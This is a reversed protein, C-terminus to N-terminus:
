FFYQYGIALGYATDGPNVTYNGASSTGSPVLASGPANDYAAVIGYVRAQASIAEVWGLTIAKSQDSPASNKTKGESYAFMLTGTGTVATQTGVMWEDRSTKLGTDHDTDVHSYGGMLKTKKLQYSAGVFSQTTNATTSLIHDDHEYVAGASFAGREYNLSGSQAGTGGGTEGNTAVMVSGSLGAFKPSTYLASSNYRANGASVVGNNTPSGYGMEFPDYATITNFMPTYQRGFTLRGYKDSEVGAYAQRGFFLGGQALRGNNAFFGAELQFIGRVGNGIDAGGKVGLRSGNLGGSELAFRDGKGGGTNYETFLDIKGYLTVNPNGGLASGSTVPIASATPAPAAKQAQELQAIREQMKQMAQKMEELEGAHAVPSLTAILGAGAMAIIIKKM